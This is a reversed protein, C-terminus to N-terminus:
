PSRTSRASAASRTARRVATAGCGYAVATSGEVWLVGGRCGGVGGGGGGGGCGGGGGGGGGSASERCCREGFELVLPLAVVRADLAETSPPPERSLDFDYALFRWGSLNCYAAAADLLPAWAPFIAGSNGGAAVLGAATAHARAFARRVARDVVDRGSADKAADRGSADAAVRGSAVTIDAATATTEM